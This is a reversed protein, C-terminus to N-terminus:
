LVGNLAHEDDASQNENNTDVYDVDIDLNPHAIFAKDIFLSQKKLTKRLFLENEELEAIIVELRKIENCLIQDHAM